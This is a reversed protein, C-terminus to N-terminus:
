EAERGERIGQKVFLFVRRVAAMGLTRFAEISNNLWQTTAEPNM